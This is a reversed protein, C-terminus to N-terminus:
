ISCDEHAVPVVASPLSPLVVTTSAPELQFRFVFAFVLIVRSPPRTVRRPGLVSWGTTSASLVDPREDEIQRTASPLECRPRPRPAKPSPRRTTERDRSSPGVLTSPRIPIVEFTGHREFMLRPALLRQSRARLPADSTQLAGLLKPLLALPASPLLNLRVVASLPTQIIAEAPPSAAPRANLPRLRRIAPPLPPPPASSPLRTSGSCARGHDRRSTIIRPTPHLHLRVPSAQRLGAQIASQWALPAGEWMVVDVQTATGRPQSVSCLLFSRYTSEVRGEEAAAQFQSSRARHATEARSLRYWNHPPLGQTTRVSSVVEVQFSCTLSLGPGGAPRAHWGGGRTDALAAWRLDVPCGAAPM